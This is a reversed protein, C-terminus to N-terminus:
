SAPGRRRPPIREPPSPASQALCQPRSSAATPSPRGIPLPRISRQIRFPRAAISQLQPSSLQPPFVSFGRPRSPPSFLAGWPPPANIVSPLISQGQTRALFLYFSSPPTRLQHIEEAESRVKGWCGMEMIRKGRFRQRTDAGRSTSSSSSSGRQRRQGRFLSRDCERERGIARRKKTYGEGNAVGALCLRSVKGNFEGGFFFFFFVFLRLYESVSISSM